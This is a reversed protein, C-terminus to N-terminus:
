DPNSQGHVISELDDTAATGEVRELQDIADIADATVVVAQDAYARRLYASTV